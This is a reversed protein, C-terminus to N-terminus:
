ADRAERFTQVAAALELIMPKVPGPLQVARPNASWWPGQDLVTSEPRRHKGPVNGVTSKVPLHSFLARSTMCSKGGHIVNHVAALGDDWKRYKEYDMEAVDEVVQLLTPVVDRQYAVAQGWLAHVHEGFPFGRKAIRLGHNSFHCLSVIPWPASRLVHPLHRKWTATGVSSVVPVADDQLIIVWEEDTEELSQAAARMAQRYNFLIGQMQPDEHVSVPALRGLSDQLRTVNEDRAPDHGPVHMIHFSSIM